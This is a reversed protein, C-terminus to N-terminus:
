VHDHGTTVYRGYLTEGVGLGCIISLIYGVQYTMVALMFAFNLAAQGVQFAGRAIDHGPIFPPGYRMSMMGTLSEVKEVNNQLALHAQQHWHLEMMSRLAAFWRSLVGLFFLGICTGVMAGASEPTWADFWLPEGLSSHFYPIM